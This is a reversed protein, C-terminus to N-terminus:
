FNRLSFRFVVRAQRPALTPLTLWIQSLFRSIEVRFCSPIHEGNWAREGVPQSGKPLCFIFRGQIRPFLSYYKPFFEVIIEGLSQATVIVVFVIARLLDPLSRSHSLFPDSGFLHWSVTGSASSLRLGPPRLHPSGTLPTTKTVKVPAIRCKPLRADDWGFRPTFRPLLFM